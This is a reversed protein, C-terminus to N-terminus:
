KKVSRGKILREMIDLYPLNEMKKILDIAKLKGLNDCQDEFDKMPFYKISKYKIIDGMEDREIDTVVEYGEKSEIVYHM